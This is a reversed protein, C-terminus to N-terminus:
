VTKVYRSDSSYYTKRIDETSEEPDSGLVDSLIRERTFADAASVRGYAQFINRACGVTDYTAFFLRLPSPIFYSERVAPDSYLATLSRRSVLELSDFSTSNLIVLMIQMQATGLLQLKLHPYSSALQEMGGASNILKIAGDFHTMLNETGCEIV